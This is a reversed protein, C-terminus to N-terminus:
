TSNRRVPRAPSAPSAVVILRDRFRTTGVYLGSLAQYRARTIRLPNADEGTLDILVGRFFELGKADAPSLVRVDDVRRILDHRFADIEAGAGAVIVALSETSAEQQLGRVLETVMPALDALSPLDVFEVEPGLLATVVSATEVDRSAAIHHDSQFDKGHYTEHLRSLVGGSYRALESTSRYCYRLTVVDFFRAVRSLADGSPQRVAQNADYAIVVPPLPLERELLELLNRLFHVPLDQGEDILVTSAANLARGLDGRNTPLDGTSIVLGPEPLDGLAHCAELLASRAPQNLAVLLPRKSDNANTLRAFRHVLTVTKGTGPGGKLLLHGLLPRDVVFRQTPHLFVRWRQAPLRLAFDLISDDCSMIDSPSEAVDDDLAAALAVSQWEPSLARIADLLLSDDGIRDLWEAVSEPLAAFRSSTRTVEPPARTEAASDGDWKPVIAVVRESALRTSHREAWQYASDHHGVHTLVLGDREAAAIIRIDMSVSISVFEGVRHRRLGKPNLDQLLQKLSSRVRRQEAATLAAIADLFGAHMRLGSSPM